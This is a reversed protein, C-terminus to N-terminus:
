RGADTISDGQFLVVDGSSVLSAGTSREAAEVPGPWAAGAALGAALGTRVLFQRRNLQMKEVDNFNSNTMNQLRRVKEARCANLSIQQGFVFWVEHQPARAIRFRFASIRM